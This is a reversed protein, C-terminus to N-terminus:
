FVLSVGALTAGTPAPAVFPVWTLVPSESAREPTELLGQLGLPNDSSGEQKPPIAPSPKKAKPDPLGYLLYAGLAIGMYLGLSAGVAVNRMHASPKSYFALSALGTLSGAMVGYTSTLLFVRAEQSAARAERVPSVLVAGALAWAGIRLM